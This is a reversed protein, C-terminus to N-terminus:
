EDPMLIHPAEPLRVEFLGIDLAKQPKAATMPSELRRRLAESTESLPEPREPQGARVRWYSISLRWVTRPPASPAPWRRGEAYVPRAPRRSRPPGATPARMERLACYRDEAPVIRIHDPREDDVRGTFADLAAERTAFGPGVMESVFEVAAGALRAADAARGARGFPANLAGSANAAIPFQIASM